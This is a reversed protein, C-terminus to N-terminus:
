NKPKLHCENIYLVVAFLLAYLANWKGWLLLDKAFIFELLNMTLVITIQCVVNLKSKIGSFIWIAMLVELIGITLILPREYAKGLIRRVIEEHRHVKNLIKAYIGNVLWVLGSLITIAHSVINRIM